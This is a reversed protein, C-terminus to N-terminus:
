PSRYVNSKGSGNAGTILDLGTLPLVLSRISRYGSIAVTQLVREHRCRAGVARTLRCTTVARDSIKRNVYALYASSRRTARLVGQTSALVTSM